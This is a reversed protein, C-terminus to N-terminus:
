DLKVWTGDEPIAAGFPFEYDNFVEVTNNAASQQPHIM